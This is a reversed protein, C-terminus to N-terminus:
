KHKYQSSVNFCFCRKQCKKWNKFFLTKKHSVFFCAIKKFINFITYWITKLNEILKGM